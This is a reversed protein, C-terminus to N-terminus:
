GAAVFEKSREKGTDERERGDPVVGGGEKGHQYLPSVLSHCHSVLQSMSALLSFDAGTNNLLWDRHFSIRGQCLSLEM